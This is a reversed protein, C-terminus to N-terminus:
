RQLEADPSARWRGAPLEPAVRDAPEAAGIGGQRAQQHEIDMVLLIDADAPAKALTAAGM